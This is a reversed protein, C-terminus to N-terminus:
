AMKSLYESGAEGELTVGGAGNGVGESTGLGSGRTIAVSVKM